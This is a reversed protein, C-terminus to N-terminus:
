SELWPLGGRWEPPTSSSERSTGAACRRSSSTSGPGEGAPAPRVLHKLIFKTPSVKEKLPADQATTNFGNRTSTWEPLHAPFIAVDVYGEEFVNTCSANGRRVASFKELPWVWEEPSLNRHYDYSATSSARPRLRQSPKGSSADWTTSTGTSSSTAERRRPGRYM